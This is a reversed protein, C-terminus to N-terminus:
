VMFALNCSFIPRELSFFLTKFFHCFLLRLRHELNMVLFQLGIECEGTEKLKSMIRGLGYRRKGEGFKGEMANRIRNDRQAQRKQEKTVQQPRGLRPGSLRIGHEKCYRINERNRYIQDASIATPYCGNRNLYAAVQERFGSSENYNNWSLREIRAYGNVLSISLKAGFECESGAKGRVIPQIHPQSISVIRDEISHTNTDYM